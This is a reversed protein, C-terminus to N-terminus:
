KHNSTSNIPSGKPCPKNYLRAQFKQDKGFKLNKYEGNFTKIFAGAAVWDEKLQGRIIRRKYAKTIPRNKKEKHPSPPEEIIM